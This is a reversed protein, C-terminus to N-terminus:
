CLDVLRRPIAARNNIRNPKLLPLDATAARGEPHLHDGLVLHNQQLLLEEHGLLRQGAAPSLHEGGLLQQAPRYTALRLVEELQLRKM